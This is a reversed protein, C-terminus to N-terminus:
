KILKKVLKSIRSDDRYIKAMIMTSERPSNKYALRLLDMWNGNNKRRISEIQDIIKIKNLKKKMILYNKKKSAITYGLKSFMEISNFNKKNVLATIIEASNIKKEILSLAKLGIGKRRFKKDICISIFYDKSKKDLRVYGCQLKNLKVVYMLNNINNLSKM